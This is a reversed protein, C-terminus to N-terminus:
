GEPIPMPAEVKEPTQEAYSQALQEWASNQEELLNSVQELARNAKDLKDAAHSVTAEVESRLADYERGLKQLWLETRRHLQAAQRQAEDQIAQARRHAELEVGATREKVASYAAADPELDAARQRAAELEQRVAELEQRVAELQGSQQSCQTRSSSLALNAQELQARLEDNEQTLRSLQEAQESLQADQKATTAEAEDLRKELDAQRQAADKSTTELYALVDQRNFGGFVASRFPHDM